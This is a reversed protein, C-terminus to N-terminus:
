LLDPKEVMKLEAGLAQLTPVFSDYGREIHNMGSVTSNGEASLAALVLAAGGRLDRAHLEAGHLAPVGTICATRGHVSIQAGLRCLEPVHLFRHEFM